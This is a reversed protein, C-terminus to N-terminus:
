SEDPPASAAMAESQRTAFQEDSYHGQMRLLHDRCAAEVLVSLNHGVAVPLTIEPIDVDMIRRVTRTGTLRDPANLTGSEPRVLRIMLGLQKRRKIAAEGFMARINLIGLGRVELFDQLVPPCGGNLDDPGLLAFEPADDAVLRHGRNILELALESKGVGPDGTLLLGISLVELFVGHVTIQRALAEGLFHRLRYAARHGSAATEFVAIGARDFADRLQTILSRGDAVVVLKTAGSTVRELVHALQEAGISDLYATEPEGIVQVQPPHIFNLYGVMPVRRSGIRTAGLTEQGGIEAPWYLGLSSKLRTFVTEVAVRRTALSEEDFLDEGPRAM